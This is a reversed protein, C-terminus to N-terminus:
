RSARTNLLRVLAFVLTGAALAMLASRLPAEHVYDMTRESARAVQTRMGGVGDAIQDLSRRAADEVKKLGQRSAAAAQDYLDSHGM